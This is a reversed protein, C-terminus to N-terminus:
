NIILVLEPMLRQLNKLSKGQWPIQKSAQITISLGTVKRAKIIFRSIMAIGSSNLFELKRVDVTAASNEKLIADLLNAIEDYEEIGRLRLTGELIVTKQADDYIAKYNEGQITKM